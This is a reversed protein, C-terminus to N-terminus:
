DQLFKPKMLSFNKRSIVVMKEVFNGAHRNKSKKRLFGLFPVEGFKWNESKEKSGLM